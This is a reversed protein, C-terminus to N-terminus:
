EKVVRQQSVAEGKSNTIKVLYVGGAVGTLSLSVMQNGSAITYVNNYVAKGEVNYLICSYRGAPTGSFSVFVNSKAPNPYIYILQSISNKLLVTNSYQYNGDNDVIQLRYYNNGAFPQADTYTHKGTLQSAPVPLVGLPGFRVGDASKEVVINRVNIAQQINIYLNDVGHTYEGTFGSLVIPLASGNLTVNFNAKTNRLGDFYLLYTKNPLLGTVNPLQVNGAFTTYAVPQPFSQGVPCASVAYVAMQIGQGTCNAQEAPTTTYGSVKLSLIGNSNTSTKIAYWANNTVFVGSNQGNVQTFAPDKHVNSTAHVLDFNVVTGSVTATTPFTGPCEDNALPTVELPLMQSAFLGCTGFTDAQPTVTYLAGTYAANDPSRRNAFDVISYHMIKGPNIHLYGSSSAEYGDNIHALNLAHGIEHLIINELDYSNAVPFCPGKEFSIAGGASAPSRILINFAKKQATFVTSTATNVCASAFNYTVELVGAAMPAMGTNKNDYEVLNASDGIKQRTTTNGLTLNAGALGKWTTVARNFTTAAADTALNIGQGLTSTSFSYTYGGSGNTNMLRPESYITDSGIKFASNLVSFYVVLDTTSEIVAGNSLVIDVRGTAARSPVKVVIKSDSWSIIYNSGYWVNFDPPYNDSNGDTFNVAAAGSATGFGSGSITLVNNAPDNLAGGHVTAPSFSTIAALTGGVISNSVNAHQQLAKAVSFGADTVQMNEGTQKEILNYLNNEIDDYLAFPAVAKNHVLDYRLFGQDSSYVDYLTRLTSPSKLNLANEQCFFIGVQGTRLTLLDSADIAQLGVTGGQTIIEITSSTIKGKFTKYVQITNATYIMVHNDDWFSTQGTVRGEAILTSAKAKEDLGIKYLQAQTTILMALNFIVLCLRLMKKM